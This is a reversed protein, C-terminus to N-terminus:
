SESVNRGRLSRRPRAPGDGDHGDLVYGLGRVTRIMGGCPHLKKRLYGVYVNVINSNPESQTEWIAEWIKVRSLIQGRHRALVELLDFERGTLDLPRDVLRAERRIPDVSLLGISIPSYVQARVPRRLLARVRALLEEFAFPKTLYDDAGADLGAIREQLARRESLILIPARLGSARWVRCLQVGDTGSSSLVLLILDVSQTHVAEDATEVHHAIEVTYGAQTLGRRLYLAAVPDEDFVLVKM